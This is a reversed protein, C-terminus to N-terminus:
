GGSSSSKGASQREAVFLGAAAKTRATARCALAAEGVVDALAVKYHKIQDFL